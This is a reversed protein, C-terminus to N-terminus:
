RPAVRVQGAPGAGGRRGRARTGIGQRAHTSATLTDLIFAHVAGDWALNLFGVLTGGDRATVWGLSHRELQAVWDEDLVRHGFGEAHLVNVEGNGFPGRWEYSITM